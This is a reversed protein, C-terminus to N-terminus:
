GSRGSLAQQRPAPRGPHSRDGGQKSVGGFRLQLGQARGRLNNRGPERQAARSKGQEALETLDAYLILELMISSTGASVHQNARRLVHTTGSVEFAGNRVGGSDEGFWLDGAVWLMSGLQPLWDRPYWRCSPLPGCARASDV